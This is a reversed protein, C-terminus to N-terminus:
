YIIIIIEGKTNQKRLILHKLPKYGILYNKDSNILEEKIKRSQAKISKERREAEFRTGYFYGVFVPTIRADRWKTNVFGHGRKFIYDGIRRGLKGTIGLYYIREKNWFKKNKGGRNYLDLIYVYWWKKQLETNEM